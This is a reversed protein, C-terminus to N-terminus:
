GDLSEKVWGSLRGAVFGAVASVFAILLLPGPELEDGRATRAAILVLILVAVLWLLWKLGALCGALVAGSFHM